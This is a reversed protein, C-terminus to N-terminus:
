WRQIGGLGGLERVLRDRSSGTVMHLDVSFREALRLLEEELPLREIEGTAHARAEDASTAAFGTQTDVYVEGDTHWPVALHSLRGRQLLELCSDVGRVGREAIEDLLKAEQAEVHERLVPEVREYVEHASAESFRLARLHAIVKDRADGVLHREFASTTGNPGLLVICRQDLQGSLRRGADQYFRETLARVHDAADDVASSGRDATYGPFVNKSETLRDLEAESRSRTVEFIPEARGAFIDFARVREGDVYVAAADGERRLAMELPLLYPEGWHGEAEGTAPDLVPLDFGIPILELGDDDAFIAAVRGHLAGEQLTQVVRDRIKDPVGLRQMTRKARTQATRASRASEDAATPLYLSLMPGPRDRLRDLTDHLPRRKPM